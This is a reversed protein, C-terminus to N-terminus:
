KRGLPCIEVHVVTIGEQKHKMYYYLSKNLCHLVLLYKEQFSLFLNAM